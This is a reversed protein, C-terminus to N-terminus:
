LLYPTVQYVYFNLWNSYFLNAHSRWTLEPKLEQNEGPYYNKPKEIDLGKMQDRKYEIDLTMRDYEPHGQIFIKSGGKDMWLYAGAEKSDALMILDEENLLQEKQIGTHRSHPAFFLDDFSRVLPIKRNWVKHQYIGFVKKELKEKNIGYFYYSAAQAAWCVFITSTVHSTTWEMIKKLEDWYTVEEFSLYELPAGTIIMGDFNKKAIDSFHVYFQNLHYQSTNKSVHNKMCMFNCNVQLPTNSLARLLQTETDEKIPMLNLILISLPRIDQSFARREEMVFINEAELIAKAPLNAPINIPM